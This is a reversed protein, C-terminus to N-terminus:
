SVRWLAWLEGWAEAPCEAVGSFESLRGMVAQRGLFVCGFEAAWQIQPVELAGPSLPQQLFSAAHAARICPLPLWHQFLVLPSEQTVGGGICWGKKKM